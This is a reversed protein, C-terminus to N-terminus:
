VVMRPAVGMTMLEQMLLKMAYPIRIQTIDASNKCSACKYINKEPNATCLLGCKRCVFVRFNDSVDLMREKLFASAGHAVIADREMEGFRLGGNRARGEAPQRTLMIIPGNNGRSNGTWVAKGNRRVMFVESPVQLCYVSGEYDYVEEQQIKQEYVHDHNVTPNLQKTVVTIKWLDHEAVIMRGDKMTAKNGKVHHLHKNGSWGAHLCLRMVQDALEESSTYYVSYTKLFSGDGLQMAYILKKCQDASLSWVWDPLRKSPAGVSLPQMYHFLQIDSITVKDEHIHFTYGLTTLAQCLAERVRPKCQCIQVKMVDYGDANLYHTTWGEAMWIGFFTLWADMPVPAAKRLRAGVGYEPLIFQYDPADWEADKQYRVHKGVVEEAKVFKYPSWIRERTHCTSVWMRHNMTVNLDIAQNSIRYMKGRYDEYHLVNTPEEYVLKNNKLTAVKDEKTVEAIPKWGQMTLVDHDPTLCHVKDSVMHKLRQYYTPGIFIETHIQEGTRGNYLIENGYREYGSTELVSALTEVSCDTFPTADGAAGLHCAAKGMICEMLQGITMRSPVAHPNMIIDPCIGNKSFPMDQQHYIMGITGKQAAKSALKDGIMPKRYKRLRVKCFKYAEGNIGTYNMDVHGEDNGKMQLSTDRAHMVGQQKYPMIKGVLIDNSDVYTNKPIFGDAGLKDYNYPRVTNGELEPKIFIEEEGTSHNKNCQDRYSKYYSSTFLGRDIASKSIMVSDEQNYGTHTMIAVVANIGSPLHESHTYTSLKTRVLPKQPYHLVHAMTDVRHNFNSMYIGVAQKGMASNSVNFGDGGLFSHHDSEVTIDSILVNRMLDKRLFPVFMSYAKVEVVKQWESWSMADQKTSRCHQVYRAFEAVLAGEMHKKHAYAMGFHEMLSTSTGPFAIHLFSDLFNPPTTSSHGGMFGAVYERQSLKSGQQVWSPVEEQNTLAGLDCMMQIFGSDRSDKFGIARVDDEFRHEDMYSDFGISQKAQMYGAIRALLPMAAHATTLPFLQMEVWRSRYPSDSPLPVEVPSSVIHTQAKPLWSIALKTSQNMSFPDMWGQHTMFKHDQTVIISRGSITQVRMIPKMAPRVYRHIVKTNHPMMTHPDFCVVSDGVQVNKIAKSSGDVLHVNEELWLCQYCNRPSQNHDMFPINAALVGNMLSAHIECHTFNPPLTTGKIPRQLDSATMAVMSKDIEDVDMYELFGESLDSDMPAIFHQFYKRDSFEKWTRNTAKMQESLALQKTAPNVVYLPRCMRGAETSISILNNPVDWTIATTAPIFGSRKYHKMTTYFDSPREHYGIIDGNIMIHAVTEGGMCKLFAFHNTVDDSYIQADLRAVVERVHTSSVSTTIHTSMAMNKVLGVSAGEPTENPCIMGFQSNELKRPQVLKGNKEMPTNIRRLHSLTSLYSMRNLVQAVGQRINQFSGISKVGWNGTSLAYRLSTEIVSTRFFTHVNSPTILQLPIKPQARWLNLERVIQTRVEKILRGYCQRFLNSYLIGPTDIRKHLYSDRNDYPQYGLYIRLLKRVMFGLYLAKRKFSPGVHALFDNRITQKLIELAREPQELYEKPTGTTGLVKMLVQLADEQTHIGCADEACAALETVLRQHRPDELDYVIHALIDKDSEIGLARFMVFLPIESRLFSASLRITRGMHNPKGSLHLSTTKPPLFVGDPMSRIEAYLGDTNGNPAFVLTKNESIRDQSIVVKENGNILFYGGMDYRCEHKGEGEGIGPMQTLVCAKSRVMIPVKGICISPMHAEKRETVGDDNITETVEHIDVYLNAAYTLNNMRALHPTMITQTSDTAIHMPKTLCPNLINVKIKYKFDKLDPCYNHCVQIPNFGQIIQILKKDLFENFSEVQHRVLTNACDAGGSQTFLAHIIDWTPDM